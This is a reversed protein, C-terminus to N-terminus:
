EDDSCEALVAGFDMSPDSNGTFCRQFVQRVFPRHDRRPRSPLEEMEDWNMADTGFSPLEMEHSDEQFVVQIEESAIDGKAPPIPMSEETRASGDFDMQPLNVTEISTRRKKRMVDLESHRGISSETRNMEDAHTRKRLSMLNSGSSTNNTNDKENIDNNTRDLDINANQTTTEVQSRGNEREYEEDEPSLTSMVLNAEFTDYNKIVFVM